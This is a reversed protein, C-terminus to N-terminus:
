LPNSCNGLTYVKLYLSMNLFRAIPGLPPQSDPKRARCDAALRSLSAGGVPLNPNLTKQKRNINQMRKKCSGLNKTLM